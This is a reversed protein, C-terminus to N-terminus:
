DLDIEHRDTAHVRCATVGARRGVPGGPRTMGPLAQGSRATATSLTTKQDVDNGIVSLVIGSAESRFKGCRFGPGGRLTTKINVVGRVIAVGSPMFLLRTIGNAMKSAECAAACITRSSCKVSPLRDKPESGLSPFKRRWPTGALTDANDSIVDDAAAVRESIAILSIPGQEDTLHLSRRSEDEYPLCNIETKVEAEGAKRRSRIATNKTEAEVIM